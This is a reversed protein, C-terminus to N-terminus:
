GQVLYKYNWKNKWDYKSTCIPCKYMKLHDLDFQHLEWTRLCSKHFRHGCKLIDEKGHGRRDFQQLCIYCDNVNDFKLNLRYISSPPLGNKIEYLYHYNLQEFWSLIYKTLREEWKDRISLYAISIVSPYLFVAHFIFEILYHLTYSLECSKLIFTFLDCAKILVFFILGFKIKRITSKANWQSFVAWFYKLLRCFMHEEDIEIGFIRMKNSPHELLPLLSCCLFQFSALFQVSLNVM